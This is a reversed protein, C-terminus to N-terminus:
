NGTYKWSKLLEDFIRHDNPYRYAPSWLTVEYVNDKGPDIAVVADMTYRKASGPCTYTVVVEAAELSGLHSRMIHATVIAKKGKRIYELLRLTADTPAVDDLSNPDAQVLVYAEAREGIAIGFGDHRAANPDDYGVMQHPIVVSYDYAENRYLGTLKVRPEQLLGRPPFDCATATSVRSVIGVM